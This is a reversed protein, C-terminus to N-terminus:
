QSDDSPEDNSRRANLTLLQTVKAVLAVEPSSGGDTDKSPEMPALKPHCYPLLTTLVAIRKDTNSKTLKILEDAITGGLAAEVISRVSAQAKNPVGSVRGGVKKHGPEFSAM